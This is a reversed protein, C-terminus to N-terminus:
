NIDYEELLYQSNFSILEYRQDTSVEYLDIMKQKGSSIFVYSKYQTITNSCKIVFIPVKNHVLM